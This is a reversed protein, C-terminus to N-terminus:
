DSNIVFATFDGVQDCFLCAARRLAVDLETDPGHKNIMTQVYAPQHAGCHKCNLRIHVERSIAESLKLPVEEFPSVDPGPM